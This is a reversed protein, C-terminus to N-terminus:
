FNIQEQYPCLGDALIECGSTKLQERIKEYQVNVVDLDFKCVALDHDLKMLVQIGEILSVSVEPLLWEQVEFEGYQDQLLGLRGVGEVLSLLKDPFLENLPGLETKVLALDHLLRERQDLLGKVKQVFVLDKFLPQADKYLAVLVKKDPDSCKPAIENYEAQFKLFDQRKIALARLSAYQVELDPYQVKFTDVVKKAESVKGKLLDGNVQSDNKVKSTNVCDNRCATVRESLRAMDSFMSSFLDATSIDEFVPVSNQFSFNPYFSSDVYDVRKLPFRPEVTSMSGQGLKSRSVEDNFQLQSTSGKRSYVLTNGGVTASISYAEKGHQFNDDYHKNSLLSVLSKLLTSKGAGNKAYILTIGEPVFHAEKIIRFDRINFEYQAM